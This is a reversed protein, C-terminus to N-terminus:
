DTKKNGRLKEVDIMIKMTQEISILVDCLEERSKVLRDFQRILTTLIFQVDYELKDIREYDKM